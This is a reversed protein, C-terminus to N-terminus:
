NTGAKLLTGRDASCPNDWLLVAPDAGMNSLVACAIREGRATRIKKTQGLLTHSRRLCMTFAKKIKRVWGHHKQCVAVAGTARQDMCRLHRYTMTGNNNCSKLLPRDHMVQTPAQLQMVQVPAQQQM